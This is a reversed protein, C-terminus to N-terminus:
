HSIIIKQKWVSSDNSIVTFYIGNNLSNTNITFSINQKALVKTLMLQGTINYIELNLNKHLIETANITLIDKVPNPHLYFPKTISQVESIGNPYLTCIFTSGTEINGQPVLTQGSL